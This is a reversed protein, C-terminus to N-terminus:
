QNKSYTLTQSPKPPHYRGQEASFAFDEIYERACSPFVQAEHRTQM